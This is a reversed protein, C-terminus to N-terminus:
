LVNGYIIYTKFMFRLTNLDMSWIGWQPIKVCCYCVDLSKTSDFKNFYIKVDPQKTPIQTNAVISATHAM